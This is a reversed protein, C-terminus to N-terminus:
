FRRRVEVDRRVRRVENDIRKVERTLEDIAQILNQIIDHQSAQQKAKRLLTEAKSTSQWMPALAVLMPPM